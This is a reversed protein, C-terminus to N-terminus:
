LIIVSSVSSQTETKLNQNKEGRYKWYKAGSKGTGSELFLQIYNEDKSRSVLHNKEYPEKWSKGKYKNRDQKLIHGPVTENTQIMKNYKDQKTNESSGLDTSQHGLKNPPLETIVKWINRRSNENYMHSLKQLQKVTRPYEPIKNLSEKKKEKQGNMNM